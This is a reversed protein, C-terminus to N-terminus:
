RFAKRHVVRVAERAYFIAPHPVLGFQTGARMWIVSEHEGAELMRLVDKRHEVEVDGSRVLHLGVHRDFHHEPGATVKSTAYRIDATAIWAVPHMEDDRPTPWVVLDIDGGAGVYGGAIFVHAWYFHKEGRVKWLALDRFRTRGDEAIEHKAFAEAARAEMGDIYEKESRGQEVSAESEGGRQRGPTDARHRDSLVSREPTRSLSLSFLTSAIPM